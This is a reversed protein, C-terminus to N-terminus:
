QPESNKPRKVPPDVALGLLILSIGGLIFGLFPAILWFGYVIGGIGGLELLSAFLFPLNAKPLRVALLRSQSEDKPQRLRLRRLGGRLATMMKTM